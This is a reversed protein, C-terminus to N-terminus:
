PILQGICDAALEREITRVRLRVIDSKYKGKWFFFIRSNAISCTSLARLDNLCALDELNPCAGSSTMLTLSISKMNVQMLWQQGGM